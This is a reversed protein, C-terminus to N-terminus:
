QTLEFRPKNLAYRPASQDLAFMVAQEVRQRDFHQRRREERFKSAPEHPKTHNEPGHINTTVGTAGATFTRSFSVHSRMVSIQEVLEGVTDRLEDVEAELEVIRRIGELSVGDRSLSQIRRLRKVDEASYRRQGGAQRAPVVLGMRDYQRLTQPHMDALQAAVSIVYVPDHRHRNVM